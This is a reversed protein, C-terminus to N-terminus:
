FTAGYLCLKAKQKQKKDVWKSSHKACLQHGTFMQLAFPIFFCPLCHSCPKHSTCLSPEKTSWFTGASYHMLDPLLARGSPSPPHYDFISGYSTLSTRSSSWSLSANDLHFHKIHTQYCSFLIWTLCWPHLFSDSTMKKSAFNSAM